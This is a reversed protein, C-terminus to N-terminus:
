RVLGHSPVTMTLVEVANVPDLVLADSLSTETPLTIKARPVNPAGDVVIPAVETPM